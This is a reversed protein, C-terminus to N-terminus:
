ILRVLTLIINEEGDLIVREFAINDSSSNDGSGIQEILRVHEAPRDGAEWSANRDRWMLGSIVQWTGKANKIKRGVAAM